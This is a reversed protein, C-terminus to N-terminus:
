VSACALKGEPRSNNRNDSHNKYVAHSEKPHKMDVETINSESRSLNPSYSRDLKSRYSNDHPSKRFNAPNSERPPKMDMMVINNDSASLKDSDSIDILIDAIFMLHMM